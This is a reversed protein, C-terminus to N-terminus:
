IVIMDHSHGDVLRWFCALNTDGNRRQNDKLAREGEIMFEENRIPMKVLKWNGKSGKLRGESAM